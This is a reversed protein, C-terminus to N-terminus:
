MALKCALATDIENGKKMSPGSAVLTCAELAVGVGLWSATQHMVGLPGPQIHGDPRQEVLIAEPPGADVPDGDVRSVPERAVPTEQLRIGDHCLGLVHLLENDARSNERNERDACHFTSVARQAAM